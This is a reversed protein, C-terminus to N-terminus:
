TCLQHPWSQAHVRHYPDATPTLDLTQCKHLWPPGPIAAIHIGPQIHPTSSIWTAPTQSHSFRHPLIPSNQLCDKAGMSATPKKWPSRLQFERSLLYFVWPWEGQTLSVPLGQGGKKNGATQTFSLKAPRQIPHFWLGCIVM